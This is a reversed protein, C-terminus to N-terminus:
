KSSTWTKHDETNVNSGYKVQPPKFKTITPKENLIPYSKRVDLKRKIGTVNDQKSVSALLSDFSQSNDQSQTSQIKSSIIKRDKNVVNDKPINSTTNIRNSSSSNSPSTISKDSNHQNIDIDENDDSDEYEGLFDM